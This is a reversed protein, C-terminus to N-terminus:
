GLSRLLNEAQGAAEAGSAVRRANGGTSVPFADRKVFVVQQRGWLSRARQLISPKRGTVPDADAKSFVLGLVTTVILVVGLALAVGLTYLAGTLVSDTKSEM